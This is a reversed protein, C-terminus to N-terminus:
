TGQLIRRKENAGLWIRVISPIALGISWAVSIFGLMSPIIHIIRALMSAVFLGASIGLVVKASKPFSVFALM